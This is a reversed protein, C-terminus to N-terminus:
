ATPPRGRGVIRKLPKTLRCARAAWKRRGSSSAIKWSVSRIKLNPTLELTMVDVPGGCAPIGPMFREMEVQAKAMFVAFNMADQVPMPWFNIRHIPALRTVADSAKEFGKNDIGLATKITDLQVGTYGYLLTMALDASGELWVGPAQLIPTVDSTEGEFVIRWFRPVLSGNAGAAVILSTVARNEPPVKLQDFFKNREEFMGAVMRDIEGDQEAPDEGFKLNLCSFYGAANQPGVNAYGAFACIASGSRDQVIKVAHDYTQPLFRPTGDDDFGGIAQTTVKSDAALIAASGTRVAVIITM